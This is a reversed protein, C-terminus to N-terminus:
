AARKAREAEIELILWDIQSDSLRILVSPGNQATAHIEGNSYGVTKAKLERAM